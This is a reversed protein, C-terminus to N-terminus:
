LAGMEYVMRRFASSCEPLMRQAFGQLADRYQTPTVEGEQLRALAWVLFTEAKHSVHASHPMVPAGLAMGLKRTADTAEWSDGDWAWMGGGHVTYGMERIQEDIAHQRAHLNFLTDIKMVARRILGEGVRQRIGAEELLEEVVTQMSQKTLAPLLARPEDRGTAELLTDQSFQDALRAHLREADVGFAGSLREFDGLDILPAIQHTTADYETLATAIAARIRKEFQYRSFSRLPEMLTAIDEPTYAGDKYTVENGKREIIRGATTTGPRVIRARDKAFRIRRGPSVEWFTDITNLVSPNGNQDCADGLPMLIAIPADEWQGYLGASVIGHNLTFHQTTRPMKGDTAEYTTRLEWSAGDASTRPPYKTVHVAVLDDIRFAETRIKEVAERETEREARVREIDLAALAAVRHELTAAAEVNGSLALLLLAEGETDPVEKFAGDDGILKGAIVQDMLQEVRDNREDRELMGRLERLSPDDRLLLALDLLARPSQEVIFLADGRDIDESTFSMPNMATRGVAGHAQLREGYAEWEKASRWRPPEGFLAVRRGVFADPAFPLNERGYFLVQVPKGRANQFTYLTREIGDEGMVVEPSLRELLGRADPQQEASSFHETM